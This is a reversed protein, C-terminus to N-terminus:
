AGPGGTMNSRLWEWTQNQAFGFYGVVNYIVVHGLTGAAVNLATGIEQTTGPANLLFHGEGAKFFKGQFKTAIAGELHAGFEPTLSVVAFITM